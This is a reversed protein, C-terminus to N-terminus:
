MWWEGTRPGIKLRARYSSSISSHLFPPLTIAAGTAFTAPSFPHGARNVVMVDGDLEACAYIVTVGQDVVGAVIRRIAVEVSTAFVVM